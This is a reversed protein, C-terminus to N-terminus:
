ASGRASIPGRPGWAREASSGSGVAPRGNVIGGIQNLAVRLARALANASIGPPRYSLRSTEAPLRGTARPGICANTWWARM